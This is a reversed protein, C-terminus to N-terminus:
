RGMLFKGGPEGGGAGVKVPPHTSPASGGFAAYNDVYNAVPPESDPTICAAPMRDGLLREPSVGSRRSAEESLCQCLHM